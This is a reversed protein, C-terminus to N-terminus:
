NPKKATQENPNYVIPLKVSSQVPKGERMRPIFQWFRVAALAAQDFETQSSDVIKPNIVQGQETVAFSLTVRVEKGGVKEPALLPAVRLLPFPDPVNALVRSGENNVTYYTGDLYTLQALPSQASLQGSGFESIFSVPFPVRYPVAKGNLLAPLFRWLRAAEVAYDKFQPASSAGVAVDTVAGTDDLAIDLVIKGEIGEMRWSLPYFPPYFAILEPMQLMDKGGEGGAVPTAPGAGPAEAPAAPTAAPAATAADGGPVRFRVTPEEAASSTAAASGAAATDTNTSTSEKKKSCAVLALGATLLLPLLSLRGM